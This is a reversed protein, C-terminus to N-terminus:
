GATCNLQRMDQHLEAHLEAKNSRRCSEDRQVLDGPDNVRPGVSDLVTDAGIGNARSAPWQPWENLRNWKRLCRSRVQGERQIIFRNDESNHSGNARRRIECPKKAGCREGVQFFLPHDCHVSGVARHQEAPVLTLYEREVITARM